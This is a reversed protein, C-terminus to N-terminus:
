DSVCALVVNPENLTVLTQVAYNFNYKLARTPSFKTSAISNKRQIRLIIGRLITITIRTIMQPCVGM